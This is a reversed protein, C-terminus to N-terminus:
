KSNHHIRLQQFANEVAEIGLIIAVPVAGEFHLLESGKDLVHIFLVPIRDRLLPWVHLAHEGGEHKRQLLSWSRHRLADGNRALIDLVPELGVEVLIEAALLVAKQDTVNNTM